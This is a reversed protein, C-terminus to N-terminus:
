QFERLIFHILMLRVKKASSCSSCKRGFESDYLTRSIFRKKGILNKGRYVYVKENVITRDMMLQALASKARFGRTVKDVSIDRCEFEYDYKQFVIEYKVLLLISKEEGRTKTSIRKMRDSLRLFYSVSSDFLSRQTSHFKPIAILLFAVILGCLRNIDM